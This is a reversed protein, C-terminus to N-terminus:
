KLVGARRLASYIKNAYKMRKNPNGSNYCGVAEWNYGLREICQALVWAGVHVNTCPDSLRNWLEPGLSRYWSSNIQMIGYDYSGNTNYNIATPNFSSEQKAIGWLLDPSIGYTKGASDFCFATADPTPFCVSAVALVIILSVIRKRLFLM